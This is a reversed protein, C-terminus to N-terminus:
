AAESRVTEIRQFQASLDIVLVLGTTLKAVPESSSSSKSIQEDPIEQVSDVSDVLAGISGQTTDVVLILGPVAESRSPLGLKSRLDFVSIIQGRLNMVGKMHAPSHPVPKITPVKIVERVQVLPAAYSEGHLRFLLYRSEHLASEETEPHQSM